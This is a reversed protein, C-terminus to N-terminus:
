VKPLVIEAPQDQYKGDKDAYSLACTQSAKFFVVQAIGENAYVRVPKPTANSIELTIYGRWEPELPTCNIAVGCRAYTSKGIVLALVDRPIQFRELSRALAYSNPPIVCNGEITTFASSDVAKPDVITAAINTFVKFEDAVRIDYGYHGLGYSVVKRQAYVPENEPGVGIQPRRVPKPEFPKIMEEVKCLYQIQHDALLGPLWAKRDIVTTM